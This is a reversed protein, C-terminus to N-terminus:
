DLLKEIIELVTKILELIVTILVIKATTLTYNEDSKKRRKRRM